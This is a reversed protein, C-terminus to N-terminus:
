EVKEGELNILFSPSPANTWADDFVELTESDLLVKRIEMQIYSIQWSNPNDASILLSVPTDFEVTLKHTTGALTLNLDLSHPKARLYGNHSDPAYTEGHLEYDLELPTDPCDKLVERLERNSVARALWRIPFNQLTVHATAPSEATTFPSVTYIFSPVSDCYAKREWTGDENKMIHSTTDDMVVLLKGTYTGQLGNSIKAKMEATTIYSLVQHPENDCAATLLLALAIFLLSLPKKM